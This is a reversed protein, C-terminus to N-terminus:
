PQWSDVDKIDTGTATDEHGIDQVENLIDSSLCKIDNITALSCAVRHTKYGVGRPDFALDAPLTSDVKFFSELLSNLKILLCPTQPITM